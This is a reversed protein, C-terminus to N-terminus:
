RVPVPGGNRGPAEPVIRAEKTTPHPPRTDDMEDLRPTSGSGGTLVSRYANGGLGLLSDSSRVASGPGRM